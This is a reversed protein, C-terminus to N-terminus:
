TALQWFLVSFPFYYHSFYLKASVRLSNPTVLPTTRYIDM